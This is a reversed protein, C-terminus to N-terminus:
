GSRLAAFDFSRCRALWRVADRVFAAAHGGEEGGIVAGDAPLVEREREDGDSDTREEREGHACVECPWRPLERQVAGDQRFVIEREDGEVSGDHEEEHQRCCRLRAEAIEDKGRLDARVM